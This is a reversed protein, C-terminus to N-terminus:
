PFVLLNRAKCWFHAKPSKCSCHGSSVSARRTSHLPVSLGQTPRSILELSGDVLEILFSRQSNTSPELRKTEISFRHHVPSIGHSRRGLQPYYTVKKCFIACGIQCLSRSKGLGWGAGETRATTVPDGWHPVWRGWGAAPM